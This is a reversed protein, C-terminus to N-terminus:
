DDEKENQNKRKRINLSKMISIPANLGPAGHAREATKRQKGTKGSGTGM